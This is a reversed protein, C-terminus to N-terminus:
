NGKANKTLFVKSGSSLVDSLGAPHGNVSITYGDSTMGAETLADAVTASMGVEVNKLGTGPITGVEVQM